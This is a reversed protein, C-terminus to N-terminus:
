ASGTLWARRSAFIAPLDDEILGGLRRGVTTLLGIAIFIWAEAGADREPLVGGVEQARRIVDRVYDHVELKHRSVYACIEPDDSAETVAQVWLDAILMRPDELELYARGMAGVWLRPDPEGAVARDWLERVRRWAEELCALYLDRKSGFHRYLIPESVGVARAIEATTVHRYSHSAFISLATDVISARRQEAPLRVSLSTM